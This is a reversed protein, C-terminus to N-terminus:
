AYMVERLSLMGEPTSLRNTAQNDWPFMSDRLNHGVSAGTEPIYPNNPFRRQWMAWLRDVNCHHLYFVPDNPSTGAVMDGGVFGHVQNHLGPGVWGELTNRFSNASSADWPSTDYADMDLVADVETQSPVGISTDFRRRLGGGPQFGTLNGQPDIQAEVTTWVQPDSFAGTKVLDNDPLDGDGGLFDSSWIPANTPDTADQTWDWYPIGLTPNGSVRQLESELSRLFMRHWPLFAPGRHPQNQEWWPRAPDTARAMAEMHLRTHRDYTSIGDAGVESKLALLAVVLERKEYDSFHRVNRRVVM